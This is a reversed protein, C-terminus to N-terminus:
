EKTDTPKLIINEYHKLFTDIAKIRDTNMIPYSERTMKFLEDFCENYRQKMLQTNEEKIEDQREKLYAQVEKKQLYDYCTRRGINLKKAVDTIRGTKIYEECFVFYKFDIGNRKKSYDDLTEPTIIESKDEWITSIVQEIEEKKDDDIINFGNEKALGTVINDNIEYNGQSDKDVLGYLLLIIFADKDEFFKRVYDYDSAFEEIREAPDTYNDLIKLIDFHSLINFFNDCNLINEKLREDGFELNNIIYEKLEVLRKNIIKEDDTYEGLEIEESEFMQDIFTNLKLQEDYEKWEKAKREKETM